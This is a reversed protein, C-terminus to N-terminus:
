EMKVLVNIDYRVNALRFVNYLTGNEITLWEDTFTDEVPAFNFDECAELPTEGRAARWRAGEGFHGAEGIICLNQNPFIGACKPAATGAFWSSLIDTVLAGGAAPFAQYTLDFTAGFLFWRCEEIPDQQLIWTGNPIPRTLPIGPCREVGQILLLLYEPTKGAAWVNPTCNACDAGYEPITIPFGM